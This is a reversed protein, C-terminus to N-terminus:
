LELEWTYISIHPLRTRLIRINTAWPVYWSLWYDCNIISEFDFINGSFCINTGTHICAQKSINGIVTFVIQKYWRSYKLIFMIGKYKLTHKNVYKITYKKYMQLGYTKKSELWMKWGLAELKSLGNGMYYGLFPIKM